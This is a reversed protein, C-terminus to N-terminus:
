DLLAFKESEARQPSARGKVSVDARITADGRLELRGDNPSDARSHVQGSIPYLYMVAPYKQRLFIQSFGKFSTMKISLAAVFTVDKSFKEGFPLRSDTFVSITKEAFVPFLYPFLLLLHSRNLLRNSDRFRTFFANGSSM